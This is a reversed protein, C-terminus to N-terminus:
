EAVCECNMEGINEMALGCVAISDKNVIRENVSLSADELKSNSFQKSFDVYKSFM